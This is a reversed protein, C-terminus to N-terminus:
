AYELIYQTVCPLEQQHHFQFILNARYLKEVLFELELLSLSLLPTVLTPKRFAM